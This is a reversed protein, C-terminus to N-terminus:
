LRPDLGQEQKIQGIMQVILPPLEEPAATDLMQRGLKAEAISLNLKGFIKKQRCLQPLRDMYDYGYVLRLYEPSRVKLYPINSPNACTPKLVVGEYLDEVTLKLFLEHALAEMKEDGLTVELCGTDRNLYRYDDPVNPGTFTNNLISFPETYAGVGDRPLICYRELVDEYANLHDLKGPLKKANVFDELEALGSDQSLTVLEDRILQSYGEFTKEIWTGGLSAWPMLECDVIVEDKGTKLFVGSRDDGFRFYENILFQKFQEDTYGTLGKIKWGGRSTMFTKEPQGKFLYIQARSGMHKTQVAVSKVGRSELFRFAAGLPEIETETSPGPCMTGSIFKAGSEKMNNLLRIDGLSLDYDDMHFVRPPGFGLDTPLVSEKYTKKSNVSIFRTIDGGSVLAATLKGGYVCGTDLFVRNKYKLNRHKIDTVSHSVHGFIHLPLNGDSEKFLWSMDEYISVTRDKIRYNRQDRLSNQDHKAITSLSCPAHTVYVPLTGPVSPFITYFPASVKWLDFLKKQAEENEQLVALSPFHLAEVEPQPTLEGTLRRVVYAEHNGQILHDGHTFVREHMYNVMEITNNGKDLYDGIHIITPKDPQAEILTVLEKLEEVCEHSDGIVAYHDETLLTVDMSGFYEAGQKPVPTSFRSKVRVREDFMSAKLTPLVKQRFRSASKTVVDKEEATFHDMVYDSAYKYDFSVLLKRYRKRDALECVEKRFQESFGTTDVIIFQTNVPFSSYVDLDLMLKEFAGRSVSMMADSHRGQVNGPLRGSAHASRDLVQIRNQDSSLVVVKMGHEIVLRTLARAYTSKGCMTPGNLVVITYPLLSIESVPIIEEEVIGTPPAVQPVVFDILDSGSLVEPKNIPFDDDMDALLQKFSM